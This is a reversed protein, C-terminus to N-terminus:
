AGLRAKEETDRKLQRAREAGDLYINILDWPDGQHVNVEGAGDRWTLHVTM